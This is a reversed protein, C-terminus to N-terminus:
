QLFVSIWYKICWIVVFSALVRNIHTVKSFAVLKRTSIIIELLFKKDANYGKFLAKSSKSQSISYFMRISSDGDAKFYNNRYISQINDTWPVYLKNQFTYRCNCCNTRIQSNLDLSYNAKWRTVVNIEEFWLFDKFCYSSFRCSLLCAFFGRFVTTCACKLYYPGYM